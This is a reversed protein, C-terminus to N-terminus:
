IYIYIYIYVHICIYIYIYICICICIDACSKGAGRARRPRRPMRALPHRRGSAAPRWERPQALRVDCTPRVHGSQATHTQQQKNIQPKSKDATTHLPHESVQGEQVPGINKTWPTSTDIEYHSSRWWSWLELLICYNYLICYVTYEEACNVTQAIRARAESVRAATAHAFPLQTPIGYMM